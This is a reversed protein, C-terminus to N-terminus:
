ASSPMRSRTRDRPSPSTYLLCTYTPVRYTTGTNFFISLKKAVQYSADVGYLFRLGFDSLYNVSAGPTIKLKDNLLYLKYEINGTFVNRSRDGLNNSNLLENRYEVGYGLASSKGILTTFNVMVNSVQSLHMNQFFEPDERRFIYHDRNNRYSLSPAITTKGVKYKAQASVFATRVREFSTSDFPAAYFSNAGFGNDVYAGVISYKANKGKFDAQVFANHRSFDNYPRYGPDAEEYSYSGYVSTKKKNLNLGLKARKLGFQGLMAEGFIKNEDQPKTVINIAGALAGQGYIRGAGGKVIEIREVADLDIPLNLIHHGTQPDIIKVGNILVLVQEFTSGRFSIDAQVGLPGRRRIDVGGINQLLEGVTESASYLIETKTVIEMSRTTESFPVTIRNEEINVKELKVERQASAGLSFFICFSFIILQNFQMNSNKIQLPIALNQKYM